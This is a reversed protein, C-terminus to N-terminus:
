NRVLVKTVAQVGGAELRCFYIGDPFRNANWTLQHVGAALRGADIGDVRRGSLDFFSLSVNRTDTLTFQLTAHAAPAGVVALTAVRTMAGSGPAIPPPSPGGAEEALPVAAAVAPRHMLRGDALSVWLGNEESGVVGVTAPLNSQPAANVWGNGNFWYIQGVGRDVGTAYVDHVQEGWVTNIFGATGPLDQMCIQFQGALAGPQTEVYEFIRAQLHAPDSGGAFLHLVGNLDRGGWLSHVHTPLTEVNTFWTTGNLIHEHGECPAIIQNNGLDFLGNGMKFEDCAYVTVWAHGSHMLIANGTRMYVQGNGAFAGAPGVVGGPLPEVM